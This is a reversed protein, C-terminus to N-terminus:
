GLYQNRNEMFKKFFTYYETNEYDIKTVPTDNFNYIDAGPCALLVPSHTAIIFQAHGKSSMKDLIKLLELQSKPSLATEPEDMFYLGKIKFRARFFSILSQGHSQTLLSKGGFYNLIGPDAVAWEDLIQGFNRFNESSFFTGPVSSEHWVIDIAKYLKKEYPNKQLRPRENQCWIYIGCKQSLAQLLTTKGTGNEGALFTVNSDFQIKKTNQFIHLNFPYHNLTPFKNQNIIIEKLHM